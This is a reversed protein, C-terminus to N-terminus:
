RETFGSFTLTSCSALGSRQVVACSFMVVTYITSIHSFYSPLYKLCQCIPPVRPFRFDSSYTIYCRQVVARKERWVFAEHAYGLVLRHSHASCDNWYTWVTCRCHHQKSVDLQSAFYNRFAGWQMDSRNHTILNNLFPSSTPPNPEQTHKATHQQEGHEEGATRIGAVM